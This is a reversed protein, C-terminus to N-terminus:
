NKIEINNECSVKSHKGKISDLEVKVPVFRDCFVQHVEPTEDDAVAPLQANVLAVCPKGTRM